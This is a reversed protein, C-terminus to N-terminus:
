KRRVSKVAKLIGGVVKEGILESPESSESSEEKPAERQWRQEGTPADPTHQSWTGEDTAPAETEAEADVTEDVDDETAKTTENEIM